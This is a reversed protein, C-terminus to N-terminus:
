DGQVSIAQKVPEDLLRCNGLLLNPLPRRNRARGDIQAGVSYLTASVICVWALSRGDTYSETGLSIGIPVDIGLVDHGADALMSCVPRGTGCGVDLITARKHADENLQALLWKVSMVQEPLGAFATEYASGLSDFVQEASLSTVASQKTVTPAMELTNSTTITAM